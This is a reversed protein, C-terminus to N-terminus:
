HFPLCILTQICGQLGEEGLGLYVFFLLLLASLYFLSLHRAEAKLMQKM